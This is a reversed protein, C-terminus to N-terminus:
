RGTRFSGARDPETDSAPSAVTAPRSIAGSVLLHWGAIALLLLAWDM